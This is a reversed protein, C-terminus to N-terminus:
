TSGNGDQNLHIRVRGPEVIWLAGIVSHNQLVALFDRMRGLLGDLTARPGVELIVIGASKAPPFRPVHGFDHDLTILTRGEICCVEFLTEDSSGHLGQDRVTMVDHGAAKLLEVGRRGINEDLKFKV